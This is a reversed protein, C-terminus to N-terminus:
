LTYIVKRKLSSTSYHRTRKYISGFMKNKEEDFNKRPQENNPKILNISITNISDKKEQAKEPILAGLGKGLASKKNM